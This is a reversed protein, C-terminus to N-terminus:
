AKGGQSGIGNTQPGAPTPASAMGSAIGADDLARSVRARMERAVRWQADTTTKVTVRLMMGTSTIQEIGLAEPPSLLDPKWQDEAALTAASDQMVQQAREIETGFPIPVDVSVVAWGQSKNGVRIVEGNRIYWVVGAADRVTTVRLGVAEVTGNAEGLDVVDGVGYQDEFMMFVGSLFDKVLNQAGFGFAIGAIGASALLPALNIGVESLMMMMAISYISATAISRLVSGLTMARQRRRESLLGTAQLADPARDRLPRLIAPVKGEGSGNTLRSIMRHVLWRLVIAGIGIGIITFIKSLGHWSALKALWSVHTQQWVWACLTSEDKACKPTPATKAPLDAPVALGIAVPIRSLASYTISV